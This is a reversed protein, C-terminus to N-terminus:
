CVSERRRQGQGGGRRHGHENEEDRRDFLQQAGRSSSARNLGGRFARKGERIMTASTAAFPNLQTEMFLFGGISDVRRTTSPSREDDDSAGGGAGEGIPDAAQRRWRRGGEPPRGFPDGTRVNGRSNDADAAPGDPLLRCARVTSSGPSMEQSATRHSPTSARRSGSGCRFPTRGSMALRPAAQDTATQRSTFSEPRLRRGPWSKLPTSRRQLSGAVTLSPWLSADSAATAAANSPGGRRRPGAPPRRSM